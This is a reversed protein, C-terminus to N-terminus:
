SSKKCLAIKERIAAREPGTPGLDLAAEFAARASEPDGTELLLAGRMTHFWRYGSLDTALAEMEHLAVDPGETRARAALLNLRIVPTPQMAYLTSYLAEIQAWDTDAATHAVAHQAAIAAQVRYPGNAGSREAKQLLSLGEHIMARNWLTRDQDELAVLGGEEDIRAPARAHQFLLLALLAAQESVGPFLELLLRALRIAEDCLAPRIQVTGESGSWGENFMLYVMLGVEGLRRAREAPAPTEFPVPTAAVTKKARTLRQEMTKPKVLFARAIEGVTLGAVVKLALALQDQRTLAPHCCIFLLRLVDDRLADPDPPPADGTMDLIDKNADLIAARRAAKRLRDLGANRGVTLLWAFPDRPLGRKPWDELAKLCAESFAEEALDIDRFVRTLAAIARPRHTAFSAELWASM